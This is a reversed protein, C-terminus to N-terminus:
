GNPEESQSSLHYGARLLVGHQFFDWEVCRQGFQEQRAPQGALRCRWSPGFDADGLVALTGHGHKEVHLHRLVVHRQAKAPDALALEVGACAMRASDERGHGLKSGLKKPQRLACTRRTALKGGHRIATAPQGMPGFLASSREVKTGERTAHATAPHMVERECDRRAPLGQGDGAVGHKVLFASRAPQRGVEKVFHEIGKRSSPQVWEISSVCQPLLELCYFGAGTVPPGM